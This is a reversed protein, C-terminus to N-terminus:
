TILLGGQMVGRVEAEEQSTTTNYFVLLLSAQAPVPVNLGTVIGGLVKGFPDNGLVTGLAVTAGTVPTFTNDLTLSYYLQATITNDIQPYLDSLIFKASLATIIGDAPMSFAYYSEAGPTVFFEIPDNPAEIEGASGFGLTSVMWREGNANTMLMTPRDGTSFPIITGMGPGATIPTVLLFANVRTRSSFVVTNSSRNVLSLSTGAETVNIAGFGSVQGNKLPSCGPIIDDQSTNLEFRIAGHLTTRTAVWWKISYTGIENFTIIGTKDDYEIGEPIPSSTDFLVNAGTDVSEDNIQQLELIRNSM